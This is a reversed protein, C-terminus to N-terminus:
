SEKKIEILEALRQPTNEIYSIASQLLAITDLPSGNEYSKFHGVGKNCQDCLIGRFTNTVHDHDVVKPIKGQRVGRGRWTHCIPCEEVHEKLYNFKRRVRASESLCKKCSYTLGDARRGSKNFASSPLKINCDVCEKM